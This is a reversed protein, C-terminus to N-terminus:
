DTAFLIVRFVIYVFYLITLYFAGWKGLKGQTTWLLGWLILGTVAEWPLDWHTLSRPVWYGSLLAGGGIAVLPDTINSGVLTGLSIGHANHRVGVIATTLEPLASAVGLLVVGILSGSVGTRVVVLETVNLAIQAGVVALGMATLLHGDV